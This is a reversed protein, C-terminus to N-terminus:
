CGQVGGMFGNYIKLIAFGQMYVILRDWEYEVHVAVLVFPISQKNRLNRGKQFIEVSIIVRAM